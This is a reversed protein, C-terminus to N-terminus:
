GEDAVVWCRTRRPCQRGEIRNGRPQFEQGKPFASVPITVFGFSQGGRTEGHVFGYVVRSGPEPSDVSGKFKYIRSM